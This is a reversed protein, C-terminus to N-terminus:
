WTGYRSFIGSAFWWTFCCAFLTGVLFLGFRVSIWRERYASMKVLLDPLYAVSYCINALVALIFLWMLTLTWDIGRDKMIAPIAHYITMIGLVGNYILRRPEWYRLSDIIEDSFTM